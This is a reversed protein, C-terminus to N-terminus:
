LIKLAELKADLILAQVKKDGIKEIRSLLKLLKKDEKLLETAKLIKEAFSLHKDKLALTKVIKEVKTHLEGSTAAAVLIEQSAYNRGVGVIPFQDRQAYYLFSSFKEGFIHEPSPFSMITEIATNSLGIYRKIENLEQQDTNKLFMFNKSQTMLIQGVGNESMQAVAQTVTVAVCSFKRFQAYTQKMIEAAGPISLFRAAEEFLYMKKDSRPMRIIQNKVLNNVVIGVLNKMTNSCGALRSLEIHVFKKTLDITTEGDFLCGRGAEVSYMALRKAISEAEEADGLTANRMMEVIQSHYPAASSPILAFSIDRLTDPNDLIYDALETKSLSNYFEIVNKDFDELEDEHKDLIHILELYIDCNSSREVPMFQVMWEITLSFRAAKFVDKENQDIAKGCYVCFQTDEENKKGL